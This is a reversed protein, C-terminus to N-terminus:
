WRRGFLYILSAFSKLDDTTAEPMLDIIEEVSLREKRSGDAMKVDIYIVSDKRTCFTFLLEENKDQVQIETTKPQIHYYYNRM